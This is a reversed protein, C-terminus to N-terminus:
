KNGLTVVTPEFSSNALDELLSGLDTETGYGGPQVCIAVNPNPNPNLEEKDILGQLYGLKYKEDMTQFKGESDQGPNIIENGDKMWIPVPHFVLHYTATPWHEHSPFILTFFM